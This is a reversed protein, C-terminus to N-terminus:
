ELYKKIKKIGGYISERVSSEDCEEIRAIESFNLDEFYYYKIRRKQTETLKNIANHLEEYKSKRIIYDDIGEYDNKYNKNEDLERMDIHKDIKHLESIDDLEFRDFTNFVDLSVEVKNIIGRIDKFLIFYKNTDSEYLLTYPNDKKKRRKPLSDM